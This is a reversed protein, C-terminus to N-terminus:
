KGRLSALSKKILLNFDNGIDTTYNSNILQEAEKETFGYVMLTRTARDLLEQSLGHITEKEVVESQIVKQKKSIYSIKFDKTRKVGFVLGCDCVVKFNKTSTEKFSLWHTQGCSSCIYKLHIDFDTPKQNKQIKTKM